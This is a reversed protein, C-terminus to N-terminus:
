RSEASNPTAADAVVGAAQQRAEKRRFKRATLWTALYAMAGIGATNVALQYPWSQGGELLVVFGVFSLITGLCFIDLSNRGCNVIATAWPTRLWQASAPVMVAVLYALALVHALRWLSLNTKSVYGLADYPVLRQLNLGPINIWPASVIFGITIPVLAVLVLVRSRLLKAGNRAKLAAFAGIAFLLQWAFPNFFWGYREPWSPLNLGGWGASAWIAVSLMLAGNPSRKMLWLLAPFWALLVIYLPLINLYGPQYHLVILRWIAGFPDYSLPTLNVHEFYLPNEFTRAAIALLGTCIAVLLIHAAFLDRIRRWIRTAGLRLGERELPGAYALVAAYGAILVFVEAADSIGMARMTWHAMGNGPVHDIFIFILALGRFFDLRLDRSKVTSGASEAKTRMGLHSGSMSAYGPM